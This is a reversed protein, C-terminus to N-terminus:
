REHLRPDNFSGKYAPDSPTNPDAGYDLLLKVKSYDGQYCAEHLAHGIGICHQTHHDLLLKFSNLTCHRIAYDLAMLGQGNKPRADAGFTLLLKFVEPNRGCLAGHLATNGALSAGNVPMGHELLARVIGLHGVTAACRVYFNDPALASQFLAYDELVFKVSQAHRSEIASVLSIVQHTQSEIWAPLCSFNAWDYGNEVSMFEQAQLNDKFPSRPAIRDANAGHAIMVRVTLIKEDHFARQLPTHGSISEISMSANRQLLLSTVGLFGLYSSRHLATEQNHGSQRNIDAGLDLILKIEDLRNEETMLCLLTKPDGHRTHNKPYKLFCPEDILSSDQEFLQSVAEINHDM